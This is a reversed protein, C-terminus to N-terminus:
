KPFAINSTTPDLYYIQFSELSDLLLRVKHWNRGFDELGKKEQDALTEESFDPPFNIKVKAFDIIYPPTQMFDMEIVQLEDSWRLMKPLWFGNLSETVGYEALRLYADRENLYGCEYNYAKIATDYDTLWVEGDTGDGLFEKLNAANPNLRLYEKIRVLNEPHKM